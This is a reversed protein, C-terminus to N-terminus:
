AFSFTAQDAGSDYSVFKFDKMPTPSDGSVYQVFEVAGGAQENGAADYSKAAFKYDGVGQNVYVIAEVFEPNDLDFDEFGTPRKAKPKDEGWGVDGPSDGFGKPEVAAGFAKLSARTLARSLDITGSKHDSFVRVKAGYRWSSAIPVRVLM